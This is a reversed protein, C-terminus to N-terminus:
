SRAGLVVRGLTYPWFFLNIVFNIREEMKGVKGCKLINNAITEIYAWGLGVIFYLILYVEM